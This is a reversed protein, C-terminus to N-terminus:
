ERVSPIEVKSGDAFVIAEPQFEFKIKDDPTDKFKADQDKFRNYDFGRGEETYKESAKLTRDMSSNLSFIVDGFVDKFVYRGKIGSIDKNTNNQYAVRVEVFERYDGPHIKKGLYSVTIAKNVEDMKAKREAEVDAKLKETEADHQTQQASFSKQEDIAEGITVPKYAEGGGFAKLMGHRVTYRMLLKSDSESLRKISDGLKEKYDAINEPIVANRPNHIIFHNVAVIALLAVTAVVAIKQKRKM